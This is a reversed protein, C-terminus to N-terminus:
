YADRRRRYPGCVGCAAMCAGVLLSVLAGLVLWSANGYQASWGNDRFHSRVIGFLTMELIWAVLTVVLALSAALSMFVTGMRHYAAGCLGFIVALGSLGAAIPILILTDTLAHVTGSSLRSSSFGFRSQPFHYGIHTGTGTYGFTGFHVTDGGRSARLYYIANWTPASVSAFILLVMAAFCFFLGPLAPGAAM